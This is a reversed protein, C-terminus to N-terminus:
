LSIKKVYTQTSELVAEAMAYLDVQLNFISTPFTLKLQENGVFRHANYGVGTLASEVPDASFSYM